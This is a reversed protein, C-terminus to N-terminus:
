YISILNIHNYYQLIESLEIPNVFKGEGSYQEKVKKFFKVKKKLHGQM